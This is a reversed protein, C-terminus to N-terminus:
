NWTWNKPLAIIYPDVNSTIMPVGTVDHINYWKWLVDGMYETEEWQVRAM